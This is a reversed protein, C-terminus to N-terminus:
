GALQICFDHRLDVAWEWPAGDGKWVGGEEEGPKLSPSYTM